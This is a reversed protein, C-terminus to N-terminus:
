KRRIQQRIYKFCELQYQAWGNAITSVLNKAVDEMNSLLEKANPRSLFKSDYYRTETNGATENWCRVVVDMQCQQMVSNMSEDFSFTYILSMQIEKTLNTKFVPAIGFNIFDSCKTKSLNFQEAMESDSFMAKFLKDLDMCSRFSFNKM